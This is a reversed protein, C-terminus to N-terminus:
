FRMGYRLNLKSHRTFVKLYIRKTGFVIVRRGFRPLSLCFFHNIKLNPVGIVNKTPERQLSEVTRGRPWVGYDQGRKTDGDQLLNPPPADETPDLGHPVLSQTTTKCTLLPTYNMLLSHSNYDTQTTTITVGSNRPTATM